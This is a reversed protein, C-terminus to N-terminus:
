MKQGDVLGIVDLQQDNYRITLPIRPLSDFEDQSPDSTSYQFRM